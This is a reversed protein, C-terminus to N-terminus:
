LFMRVMLMYKLMKQFLTVQPKKLLLNSRATMFPRLSISDGVVSDISGTKDVVTTKVKVDNEVDAPVLFQVQLDSFDEKLNNDSKAEKAVTKFVDKDIKLIHTKKDYSFGETLQQGYDNGRAM